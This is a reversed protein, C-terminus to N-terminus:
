LDKRLFRSVRKFHRMVWRAREGYRYVVTEDVGGLDPGVVGSMVSRRLHSVGTLL